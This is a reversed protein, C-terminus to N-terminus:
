LVLLRMQFRNRADALRTLEPVTSLSTTFGTGLDDTQEVPGPPRPNQFTM